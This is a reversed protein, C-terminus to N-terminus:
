SQLYGLVFNGAHGTVRSEPFDPIESYPIRYADEIRDALLGLGSGLILGVRPQFGNRQPEASVRRSLGLGQFGWGFFLGIVLLSAAALAKRIM